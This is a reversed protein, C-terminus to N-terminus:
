CRQATGPTLRTVERQIVGCPARIASFTRPVDIFQSYHKSRQNRYAERPWSQVQDTGGDAKMRRLIMSVENAHPIGEILDRSWRRKLM